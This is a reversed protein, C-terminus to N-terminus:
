EGELACVCRWGEGGRGGAARRVMMAEQKGSPVPPEPPGAHGPPALACSRLWSLILEFLDPDLDLFCRGAEDRTM